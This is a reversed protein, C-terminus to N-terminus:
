KEFVFRNRKYLLIGGASEYSHPHKGQPLKNWQSLLNEPNEAKQLAQHLGLHNQQRFIQFCLCVFFLDPLHFNFRRSYRQSTVHEASILYHSTNPPNGKENCTHM